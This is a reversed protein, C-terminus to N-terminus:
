TVAGEHQLQSDQGIAESGEQLSSLLCLRVNGHVSSSNM